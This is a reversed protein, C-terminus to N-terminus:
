KMDEQQQKEPTKEESEKEAEDLLERLYICLHRREYLPKDPDYIVLNEPTKQKVATKKDKEM